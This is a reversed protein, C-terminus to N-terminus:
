NSSAGLSRVVIGSMVWLGFGAAMVGVAIWPGVSSESVTEMRTIDAAPLIEERFGYNGSKRLTVATESFEVLTGRVQGGDALTVRVKAGVKPQLHTTAPASTDPHRQLPIDAYSSCGILHAALLLTPLLKKPM